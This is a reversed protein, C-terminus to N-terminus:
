IIIVLIQSVTRLYLKGIFISLILTGKYFEFREIKLNLKSSM